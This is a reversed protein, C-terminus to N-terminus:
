RPGAESQWCARLPCSGLQARVSSESDRACEGPLLDGYSAGGYTLMRDQDDYTGTETATPTVKSLRNGNLDYTYTASLVGNKTVTALRGAADYGYVYTTTVGQITEVKTTIRGLKDRTYTDALLTTAGFKATM